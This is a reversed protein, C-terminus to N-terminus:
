SQGTRDITQLGRMNPDLPPFAVRTIAAGTPSDRKSIKRGHAQAVAVRTAKNRATMAAREAAAQDKAGNMADKKIAATARKKLWRKNIGVTRGDSLAIPKNKAKLGMRQTRAIRAQRNLQAARRESYFELARMLIKDYAKISAPKKLGEKKGKSYKQARAFMKTIIGQQRDTLVPGLAAVKASIEAVRTGVEQILPDKEIQLPREVLTSTGNPNIRFTYKAKQEDSLANYSQLARQRALALQAPSLFAAPGYATMRGLEMTGVGGVYTGPAPPAPETQMLPGAPAASEARFLEDIGMQEKEEVARKTIAEGVDANPNGKNKRSM